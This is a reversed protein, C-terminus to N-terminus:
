AASDGLAIIYQGPPLPSPIVPLAFNTKGDGGYKTGIIAFLAQYEAIPLIDGNCAAWGQPVTKGAFFLATGVLGNM